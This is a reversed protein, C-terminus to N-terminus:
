RFSKIYSNYYQSRTFIRAHEKSAEAMKKRQEPNKYLLTIADKLQDVIKERDIQLAVNAPAYEVLGGSKTVILPLGSLMGEIAVLGAAEEWMSPVVQVDACQYYRYLKANEIYGTFRIRESDKQVLSEIEKLFPTQTNVAFDANGIILLKINREEILSFAELLEKVGKVDQIRGCYLVVFDNEAIDLKKRLGNRDDISIRKLFKDENVCNYVVHYKTNEQKTTRMWEKKVFESVAIINGYVDDFAPDALIHHHIHLYMKEKGFKMAYRRFQEQLVGESVVADFSRKKLEKYVKRCYGSDTLFGPKFFVSLYRRIRNNVKDIFNDEPVFIVESNKYREAMKEAQENAKSFVVLEIKKEIENQELLVTVLEEIAGGMVAPVPLTNGVVLCIKKM